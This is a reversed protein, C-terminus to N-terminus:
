QGLPSAEEIEGYAPSAEQAGEDKSLLSRGMGLEVVAMERTNKKRQHPKKKKKPQPRFTPTPL